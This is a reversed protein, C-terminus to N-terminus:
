RMSGATSHKDAPIGNDGELFRHSLASLILMIAIYAVYQLDGIANGDTVTQCLYTFLDFIAVHWFYISVSLKGLYLMPKLQLFRSLLNDGVALFIVLPCIVFAFAVRSDGSIIEVGYRMFLFGSGALILAAAPQLWTWKKQNLYPLLEAKPFSDMRHVHSRGGDM